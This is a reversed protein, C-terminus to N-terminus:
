APAPLDFLEVLADRYLHAEQAHAAEKLRMTPGHLLKAVVGATVAEVVTLAESDLPGLRAQWRRLEARRVEEVRCRLASVLPAVERASSQRLFREVEDAVVHEVDPLHRRRCALADAAAMQLDDLHVLTVGDLAAVEPDVDYPLGLDVILLPREPRGAMVSACLERGLVQDPSTTATLVIDAAALAGPLHEATVPEGGVAAAVAAARERGRGAVAISGVGARSLLQAMTSGMQGAGLM